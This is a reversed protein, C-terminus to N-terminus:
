GGSLLSLDGFGKIQVDLAAISVTRGGPHFSYGLQYMVCSIVGPYALIKEDLGATSPRAHTMGSCYHYLALDM